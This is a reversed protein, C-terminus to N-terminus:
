IQICTVKKDMHSAAALCVYEFEQERIPKALNVSQLEVLLRFSRVM